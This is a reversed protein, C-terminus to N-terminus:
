ESEFCKVTAQISIDPPHRVNVRMPFFLAYIDPATTREARDRPLTDEVVGALNVGLEAQVIWCFAITGDNPVDSIDKGFHFEM